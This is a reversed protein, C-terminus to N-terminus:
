NAPAEQHMASLLSYSRDSLSALESSLSTCYEKSDSWNRRYHSIHFCYNETQTWGVPCCIDPSTCLIFKKIWQIRSLRQELNTRQEGVSHLTKQLEERESQCTHLQEKTEQCVKQEQQSQVLEKKSEQLQKENMRLQSITSVLEQRLSNNTNELVESILQLQQSVQLYRVGLCMAAVGFLLCTVLLGLFFYQIHTACCPLLRGAAPSEVSSRYAEPQQSSVGAKLGASPPSVQVNEYTIDGDEDADPDQGLHNSINKLPAKVFRLDAYTIAEAM